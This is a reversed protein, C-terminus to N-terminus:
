KLACSKIKDFKIISSVRPLSDAMAFLYIM